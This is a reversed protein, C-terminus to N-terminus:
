QIDRAAEERRKVKEQMEQRKQRKPDMAICPYELLIRSHSSGPEM